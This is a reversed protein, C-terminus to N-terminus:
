VEKNLTNYFIHDISGYGPPLHDSYWEGDRAPIRRMVVQVGEARLTSDAFEILGDLVIPDPPLLHEEQAQLSKGYHLALRVRFINFGIIVGDRCATFVRCEGPNEISRWNRPAMGLKIGMSEPTELHFTIM